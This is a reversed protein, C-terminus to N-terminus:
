RDARRLHREARVTRKECFRRMMATAPLPPPFSITLVESEQVIKGKRQQRERLVETEQGIKRAYDRNGKECGGGEGAHGKKLTREGERASERKGIECGGGEGRGIKRRLEMAMEQEM